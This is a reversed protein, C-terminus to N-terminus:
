ELSSDSAIQGFLVPLSHAYHRVRLKGPHRDKDGVLRRLDAYTRQPPHGETLNM